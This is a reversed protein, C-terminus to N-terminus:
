AGRRSTATSMLTIKKGKKSKKGVGSGAPKSELSVGGVNAALGGIWYTENGGKCGAM